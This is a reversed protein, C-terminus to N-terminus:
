AAGSLPKRAKKQLRGVAYVAADMLDDHERDTLLLQSVLQGLGPANKNFRVFGNEFVGSVSELRMIKDEVAAITELPITQVRYRRTYDRWDGEFSKQYANKEAMVRFQKFRKRLSLIRKIKEVNGSARFQEAHIVYYLGDARGKGVLVLATFDDKEEEGAALDVGLVLDHLDTPLEAYQIHEPKIPNDESSEPIQNQYQYFFSVPKRTRIKQLFDTPFRDPWASIETGDSQLILAAQEIVKWDNAPTFYQAHIDEPSWRTGLGVQRGGPILCPEIADQITELMTERVEPNQIHKKNKILDDYVVWHFRNSTVSGTAGLAQFTIDSDLSSVGAYTKDIEWDTDGWRKGPRVAPFIERYRPSEILRKIVRSSKLAIQESYSVWGTISHPNHGIVWSEIIRMWTTKASGRFSLLNTDDGAVLNLQSNSEGTIIIEFWDRHIKEPAKGAVYLGFAGVDRRAELIERAPAVIVTPGTRARASYKHRSYTHVPM